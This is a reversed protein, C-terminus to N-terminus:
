VTAPVAKKGSLMAELGNAAAIGAELSINNAELASQTAKLIQALAQNTAIAAKNATAFNQLFGALDEINAVAPLQSETGAVPTEAPKEDVKVEGVAPPTVTTTATAPTEPAAPKEPQAEPVTTTAQAASEAQMAMKTAVILDEWTVNEGKALEAFAPNVTSEMRWSLNSFAQVIALDTEESEGATAKAATITAYQAAFQKWTEGLLKEPDDKKYLSPFQTQPFCIKTEKGLAEYLPIEKGEYHVKTQLDAHDVRQKGPILLVDDVVPIELQGAKTTLTTVGKVFHKM